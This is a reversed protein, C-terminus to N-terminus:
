ILTCAQKTSKKVTKVGLEAMKKFGGDINTVNYGLKKMLSYGILSRVGGQCHIYVKQSDKLKLAQRLQAFNKFIAKEYVGNETEGPDRIDLVVGDATKSEFDKSTAYTLTDVKSVPKGAKAWAEFSGKLHGIINDLGTRALRTVVEDQHEPPTVLLIKEDNAVVYTAWIALKGDFPVHVSGPVHGQVFEAAPRCDLVVLKPENQLLAEVQEPSFDKAGAM